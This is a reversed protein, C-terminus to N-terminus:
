SGWKHRFQEIQEPTYFHRTYATGYMQSLYERPMQALEYSAVGYGKPVVGHVDRDLFETMAEGFVEDIKETQMILLKNIKASPNEYLSWGREANFPLQYVNVGMYRKIQRDFWKFMADHMYDEIFDGEGARFAHWASFNRAVPERVLTVVDWGDHKIIEPIIGGHRRVIPSNLGKRKLPFGPCNDNDLSHLHEVTRCSQEMPLRIKKVPFLELLGRQVTQSGVKGMQYVLIPKDM